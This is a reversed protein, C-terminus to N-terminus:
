GGGWGFWTTKSKSHFFITTGILGCIVTHCVHMAHQTVLAVSVYKCHTITIAKGSGCVHRLTVNCKYQRYQKTNVTHITTHLRFYPRLIGPRTGTQVHSQQKKITNVDTCQKNLNMFIGVSASYYLIGVSASYYLIGVSASYYLIGVSASYYLIGVSASYYLIGVSASYYLIFKKCNFCLVKLMSQGKGTPWGSPTHM